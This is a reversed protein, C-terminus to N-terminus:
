SGLVRVAERVVREHEDAYTRERRTRLLDVAGGARGM